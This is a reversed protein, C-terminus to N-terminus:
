SGAGNKERVPFMVYFDDVQSRAASAGDTLTLNRKRENFCLTEAGVPEPPLLLGGDRSCELMVCIRGSTTRYAGCLGGEGARM